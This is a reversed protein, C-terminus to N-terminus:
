NNPEQHSHEYIDSPTIPIKNISRNLADSVANAIAPGVPVIPTDGIGRVKLPGYGLDSDLVVINLEPIDRQTPMKYDAFSQNLIRGDEATLEEMLSHGIGQIVGGEIQATFGQPNVVKGTEHAATYRKLWVTGTWPDIEVEAIHATFSMYPIEDGEDISAEGSISGGTRSVIDEFTVEESSSRNVIKGERVILNDEQWGLLESALLAINKKFDQSAEYAARTAVRTGRQGAVGYDRKGAETSWPEITIRSIDVDLEDAVVQALTTGTGMGPDYIMTNIIISGDLNVRVAVPTDYGSDGQGHFAIGRGINPLKQDFYGAKDAAAQLIENLRLNQYKDSEPSTIPTWHETAKVDQPTQVFNKGRLEFPDMGLEKALMDIISESAFVSQMMGPGRIYGGPVTNTYVQHSNIRVNPVVYPEVMATSLMGGLEGVPAYAAYGGTAFFGEAEWAQILGDSTAGVKVKITAPHRPNMASLEESYDMVYKVAKGTKAALLYCVVVGTADMKGGFSGGIHAPNIVLREREIGMMRALHPRRGTPIQSSMWVQVKEEEDIWVTCAHPELYGQHVRPTTYTNEVIVDSLRFGEESDGWETVVSQVVNSLSEQKQVGRYDNFEEHLIPAGPAAAQEPEFVAPLEDYTVSVLKVADEAIEKTDAAIAAVKDGIFRVKDWSALIPEDAYLNGGRLSKVDEGSIFARVGPLTELASFDIATVRAHAFPSRVFKVWLTETDAVDAVFRANGTVKEPGDLRPVSKGIVAM